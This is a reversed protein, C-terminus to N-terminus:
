ICKKKGIGRKSIYIYKTIIKKSNHTPNNLDFEIENRNLDWIWIGKKLLRNKGRKKKKFFWLFYSLFFLFFSFSYVCM